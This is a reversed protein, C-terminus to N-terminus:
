SVVWSGFLGGGGVFRVPVVEGGRLTAAADAKGRTAYVGPLYNWRTGVAANTVEPGSTVKVRFGNM